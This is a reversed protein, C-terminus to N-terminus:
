TSEPRANMGRPYTTSELHSTLLALVFHCRATSCIPPGFLYRACSEGLDACFVATVPAALVKKANGGLMTTSLRERAEADRVLVVSWPQMNFASPASPAPSSRCVPLTVPVQPLPLATLNPRFQQRQMVLVSFFFGDLRSRAVRRSIPQPVRPNM